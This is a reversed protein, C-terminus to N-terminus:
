GGSPVSPLRGKSLSNEQSRRSRAGATEAAASNAPTAANETASAASSAERGQSHIWTHAQDAVKGLLLLDDRGFSTTSRWEQGDRYIREFTVSHRVGGETENRWIAARIAGLRIEEVPRARASGPGQSTQQTTM